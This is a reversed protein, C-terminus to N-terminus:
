GCHALLMFLLKDLHESKLFRDDETVTQVARVDVHGNSLFGSAVEVM